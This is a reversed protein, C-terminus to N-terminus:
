SHFSFPTPVARGWLYTNRKWSVPASGDGGREQIPGAAPSCVSLSSQKDFSTFRHDHLLFKVCLRLPASVCLPFASEGGGFGMVTQHGHPVARQVDFAKRGQAKAGKRQFEQHITVALLHVNQAKPSRSAGM